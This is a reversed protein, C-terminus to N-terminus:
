ELQNQPQSNPSKPQTKAPNHRTATRGTGAEVLGALWALPLVGLTIDKM